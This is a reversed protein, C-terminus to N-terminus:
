HPLQRLDNPLQFTRQELRLDRGLNEVGGPELRFGGSSPTETQRNMSPLTSFTPLANQPWAQVEDLSGIEAHVLVGVSAPDTKFQETVITRRIEAANEEISKLSGDVNGLATVDLTDGDTTKLTRAVAGFKGLAVALVEPDELDVAPAAVVQDRQVYSLQCTNNPSCRLEHVIRKEITWSPGFTAVAWHMLKAKWDPVGEARMGYYFNRHTDHATREKTECFYDHIVSAKLYNGEFPGGIFSWFAAPISAGDVETNQPVSWEFGNPDKFKFIDTLRFRPRPEASVFTGAPGDSFEGFYEESHAAETALFVGFATVLVRIM